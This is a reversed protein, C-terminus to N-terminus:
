ESIVKANNFIPDIREDKFYRDMIVDLTSSAPINNRREERRACAVWSVTIDFIILISMAITLIKFYHSNKINEIKKLQPLIFEYFLLGLVGWITSHWLSTRGNIDYKMYSYDWSITGFIKEQCYSFVYEIFGGLFFSVFFVGLIRYIKKAENEPLKRFILFFLLLGAGYVPILPEYILGQRLAYEGRFLMLLNEYIFGSFSGIIFIWFLTSYKEFIKKM